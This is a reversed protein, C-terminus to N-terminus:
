AAKGDAPLAAREFGALVRAAVGDWSAPQPPPLVGRRPRSAADRLAATWAADDDPHLLTAAGQAAEPNGGADAAIVARGQALAVSM